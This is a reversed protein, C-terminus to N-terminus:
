EKLQFLQTLESNTLARNYIRLDDVDGYFAERAPFGSLSGITIPKNNNVVDGQIYKRASLKNNVYFDVKSSDYRLVLFDYQIFSPAYLKAGIEKSIDFFTAGVNWEASYFGDPRIRILLECNAYSFHKSLINRKGFDPERMPKVWIAITTAKVPINVNYIEVGGGSLHIAKNPQDFRNKTPSFKIVYGDNRGGKGDKADGDLPYYALLGNSLTSQGIGSGLFFFFFISFLFIAKVFM